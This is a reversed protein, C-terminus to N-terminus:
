FIESIANAVLYVSVIFLLIQVILYYINEPMWQSLRRGLVAGISAVVAMAFFSSWQFGSMLGVSFYAPLKFLNIAAFVITNTGAYEMKPLRQPLVYTQFPPGGTHSIFSTIGTIIGWFTGKLMSFPSKTNDGRMRRFFAQACYALGILGTALAAASSSIHPALLTAILVGVLGAPILLVVNKASYEHRYLWVAVQALQNSDKDPWFLHDFGHKCSDIFELRHKFAFQSEHVISYIKLM